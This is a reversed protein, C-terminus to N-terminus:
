KACRGSARPSRRILSLWDDTAQNQVAEMVPHLLHV